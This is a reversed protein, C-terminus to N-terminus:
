EMLGRIMQLVAQYLPMSLLLVGIRSALEIKQGIAQEGADKCVDCAFQGLYTIGTAKLLITMYEGGIGAEQAMEELQTIVPAAMLCCAGLLGMGCCLSIVMSFEGRYHRLVLSLMAAAVGSVLLKMLTDM